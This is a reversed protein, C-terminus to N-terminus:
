QQCQQQYQEEAQACFANKKPVISIYTCQLFIKHVCMCWSIFIRHQKKKQAHFFRFIFVWWASIYNKRGRERPKPMAIRGAKKTRFIYGVVHLYVNFVKKKRLGRLRQNSNPFILRFFFTQHAFHICMSPDSIKRDRKRKAM